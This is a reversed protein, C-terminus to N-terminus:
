LLLLPLRVHLVPHHLDLPPTLQFVEQLKEMQGQRVHLEIVVFVAIM